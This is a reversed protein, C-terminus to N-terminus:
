DDDERQATAPLKLCQYHIPALMGERLNAKHEAGRNLCAKESDFREDSLRTLGLEYTGKWDVADAPAFYIAMILVWM